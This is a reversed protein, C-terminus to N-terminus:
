KPYFWQVIAQFENHQEESYEPSMKSGFEYLHNKDVAYCCSYDNEGYSFHPVKFTAVDAGGVVHGIYYVTGGDTAYGSQGWVKLKAPDVGDWYAWKETACCVYICYARNKDVMIGGGLYNLTEIDITNDLLNDPNSEDGEFSYRFYSSEEQNPYSETYKVCLKGTSDRYFNDRVHTYGPEDLEPNAVWEDVADRVLAEESVNEPVLVEPIATLQCSQFGCFAICLVAVLRFTIRTM